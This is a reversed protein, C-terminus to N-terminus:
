DFDFESPRTPRRVAAVRGAHVPPPLSPEPGDGAPPPRSLPAEADLPPPLGGRAPVATAAVIGAVIWFALAVRDVNAPHDVMSYGFFGLMSLLCWLATQDGARAGLFARRILLVAFWVWAILAGTGAEAWWTLFLNHAHRATSLSNRHHLVTGLRGLGVGYVPNDRIVELTMRWETGRGFGATAGSGCAGVLFSVAIAAAIGVLILYRRNTVMSLGVGLGLLAISLLVAARSYTFVVALYGFGLTVALAPWAARARRGFSAALGGIPLVLLLYGALVNPNAFTGIARTISGHPPAGTTTVPVCGHRYFGTLEGQAVQAVAILSAVSLAVLGVGALAQRIEYRTRVVAFTLYFLAVSEVLFRYRPYTGWRHSTVLGVVLLLLLPLGTHARFPELRRGETWLIAAFGIIILIRALNFDLQGVSILSDNPLIDAATSLLLVAVVALPIQEGIRRALTAAEARPPAFNDFTPARV